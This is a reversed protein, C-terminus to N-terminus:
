SLWFLGFVVIANGVVNAVFYVINTYMNWRRKGYLNLVSQFYGRLPGCWNNVLVYYEAYLNANIQIQAPLGMLVTVYPTAWSLLGTLLLGSLLAWIIYTGITANTRAQSGAGLRQSAVAAGAFITAWLINGHM